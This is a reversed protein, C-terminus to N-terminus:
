TQRVQDISTFIGQPLSNRYGVVAQALQDVNVAPDVQVGSVHVENSIETEDATNLDLKGAAGTQDANFTSLARLVVRKQNGIGGADTPAGAAEQPLRILLGQGGSARGAASIPQVIVKQTDVGQDRLAARIHETDPAKVFQVYYLSGGAFDVGLNFGRAVVGVCGILMLVVSITMFVAKHGLFDINNDHFLRLM